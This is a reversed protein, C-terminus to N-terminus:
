AGTAGATAATAASAATTAAGATGIPATTTSRTSDSASGTVTGATTTGATVGTLELANATNTAPTASTTDGTGSTGAASGPLAADAAADPLDSTTATSALGIATRADFTSAAADPLGTADMAIPSPSTDAVVADDIGAAADAARVTGPHRGPEAADLGDAIWPQPPADSLAAVSLRRGASNPCGLPNRPDARATDLLARLRVQDPRGSSWPPADDAEHVLFGYSGRWGPPLLYSRHWVDTGDLHELLSRDLDTEDTVRNVFLLVARATDSRWLFTLVRPEGTPDREVLPASGACRDWFRGLAGRRSEPVRLGAIEERLARLAPSQAVPVPTPRRVKPPQRRPTSPTGGSREPVASASGGAQTPTAGDTQAPM